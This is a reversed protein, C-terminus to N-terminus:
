YIKMSHLYHGLLQGLAPSWNFVIPSALLLFDAVCFNM